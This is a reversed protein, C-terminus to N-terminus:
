TLIKYDANPHSSASFAFGQRATDAAIQRAAEWWRPRHGFECLVRLDSSPRKLAEM